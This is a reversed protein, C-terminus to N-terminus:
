IFDRHGGANLFRGTWNAAFNKLAFPWNGGAAGECREFHHGLRRAAHHVRFLAKQELLSGGVFNAPGDPFDMAPFGKEAGGNAPPQAMEPWRGGALGSVCGPFRLLEGRALHFHELENGLALGVLLARRFKADADLGDLFVAFVEHLLEVNM